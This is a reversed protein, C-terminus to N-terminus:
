TKNTFPKVEASQNNSASEQHIESQSSDSFNENDVFCSRFQACDRLTFEKTDSKNIYELNFSAKEQCQLSNGIQIDLISPKKEVHEDIQIDKM